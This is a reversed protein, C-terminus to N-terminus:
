SLHPNDNMHPTCFKRHFDNSALLSKPFSHKESIHSWDTKIIIKWKQMDTPFPAPVCQKHM